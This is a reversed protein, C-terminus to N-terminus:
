PPTIKLAVTDDRVRKLFGFGTGGTGKNDLAPNVSHEVQNLIYRTVLVIHNNRFKVLEEVVGNYHAILEADGSDRCFDRVSPMSELKALFERHGRPMYDKMANVFEHEKKGAHKVGLFLDFAFVSSSQGASAGYYEIPNADIGEYIIGNPFPDLDKFGALFPRLQVFFFVPDCCEYIRNSEKMMNQLSSKLREMCECIGVHNKDAIHRFCEEMANLGPIAAVEVRVHAMFFNSEDENPLFRQLAYLNELDMTGSPDRLGYNYLVTSAYTGIPKLGLHQSVAVWPIALIRPIKDVIGAQGDMWVYGQGLYSLLSYARAWEEESQLTSSSFETEPLSLVEERLKKTKILEPLKALVEEWKSFAEGRLPTLPRSPLFGTEPSINYKSLELTPFHHGNPIAMALSEHILM